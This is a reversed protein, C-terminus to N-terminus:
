ALDAGAQQFAELRKGHSPGQQVVELQELVNEHHKRRACRRTLRSERTMGRTMM